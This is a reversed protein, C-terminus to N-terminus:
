NKVYLVTDEPVKGNPYKKALREVLLGDGNGVRNPWGDDIVCKKKVIFGGVDVRGIVPAADFPKYLFVDFLFNCLILDWNNLRSHHIMGEVFIPIYYADDLPFCVYEGRALDRCAEFKVTQGLDEYRKVHYWFVRREGLKEAEQVPALCDGRETQDLVLLEWSPNTQVRLCAILVRLSNPRDSM